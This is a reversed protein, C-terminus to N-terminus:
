RWYLIHPFEKYHVGFSSVWCLPLILGSLHRLHCLSSCGAGLELGLCYKFQEATLFAQHLETPICSRKPYFLALNDGDLINSCKIQFISEFNDKPGENQM